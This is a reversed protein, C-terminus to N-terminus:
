NNNLNTTLDTKPDITVTASHGESKISVHTETGVANNKVTVSTQGPAACSLLYFVALLCAALVVLAKLWPAKMKSFTSKLFELIQNM